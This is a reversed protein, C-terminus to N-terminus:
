TRHSGSAPLRRRRGPLRVRQGDKVEDISLKEERLLTLTGHIRVRPPDGSIFHLDSSNKDLADTLYADMKKAAVDNM